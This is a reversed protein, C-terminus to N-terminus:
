LTTTSRTTISNWDIYGNNYVQDPDSCIFHAEQAVPTKKAQKHVLERAVIAEGSLDGSSVSFLAVFLVMLVMVGVYHMGKM